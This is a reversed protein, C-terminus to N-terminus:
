CPTVRKFFGVVFFFSFPLAPHADQEHSYYRAMHMSTRVDLVRADGCEEKHVRATDIQTGEDNMLTMM